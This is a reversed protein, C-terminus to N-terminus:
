IGLGLERRLEDVDRRLAAVEDRLEEIAERDPSPRGVAAAGDDRVPRAVAPADGDGPAPARGDDGLRHTYREEKQGPRRGLREVVADHAELLEIAHALAAVDDFEALRETRARLEGQTQPGRLLLVAVIALQQDDIGLSGDLVHAYRLASRGHSPHVFRVLGRQKLARVASEVTEEDYDVVPDRNTSQNCAAVLANLTLPYQQPTALAKEILAGIIRQEVADLSPRGAAGAGDVDDQSVAALMRGVM